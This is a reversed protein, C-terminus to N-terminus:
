LVLPYLKNLPSTRCVYKNRAHTSKKKKTMLNLDFSYHSSSETEDEVVVM